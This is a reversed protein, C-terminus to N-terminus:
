RPILTFQQIAIKAGLAARQPDPLFVVSIEDFRRLRPQSPIDFTLTESVPSSKM